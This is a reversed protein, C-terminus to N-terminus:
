SRAPWSVCIRRGATPRPLRRCARALLRPRARDVEGALVQGVGPRAVHVARACVPRSAACAIRASAQDRSLAGQDRQLDARPQTGAPLRRGVRDQGHVGPQRRPGQGPQAPQLRRLEQLAADRGKLWRATDFPAPELGAEVKYEAELRSILVELQLQGVVGVIWHAGIEPYFVQTVGEEALDDLAKRLQKTKTPDKLAVRRLIEPAFNPLGTFRVDDGDRSLTDGVRLTGHNPIGIIDGPFPRTPWSATRRSSCSRRTSRSRSAPARDPDAEHRAQVHGLVAAHLRHPRPPQPGHQGPGQLRLRHSRRSRRAPDAGARRAAARPPPAYAALAAILEAVGFNKLASGFYVPTLDGNRYAELDFQPIAARRWSSRRPSRAPCRRTADDVSASSSAATARPGASRAPRRPRARGRVHGGMGVPWTMPCVDLALM